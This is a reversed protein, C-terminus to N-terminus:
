FHKYNQYLSGIIKACLTFLILDGLRLKWRLLVFFAGNSLGVWPSESAVNFGSRPRLMAEASALFMFFRVKKLNIQVLPRTAKSSWSQGLPLRLGPSWKPTDGKNWIVTTRRSRFSKDLYWLDNLLFSRNWVFTSFYEHTKYTPQLFSCIILIFIFARPKKM